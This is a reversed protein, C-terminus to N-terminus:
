NTGNALDSNGTPSLADLVASIAKESDPARALTQLREAVLDRNAADEISDIKAAILRLSSEVSLPMNEVVGTRYPAVIDAAISKGHTLLPEIKQALRPSIDSLLCNFGIAYAVAADLNIPRHASAHQAMMSPGGPIGYTEAFKKRTIGKEAKIKDLRHNLRKGEEENTWIDM